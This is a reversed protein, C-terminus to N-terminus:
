LGRLSGVNVEFETLFDAIAEASVVFVTSEKLYAIDEAQVYQDNTLLSHHVGLQKRFRVYPVQEFSANDLTGDQLSIAAPDFRALTLRATTVIVSFFLKFNETSPPRYDKHELALCETALVLEAATKEILTIRESTSQGRVACFQAEACTPNLTVGSWGFTPMGGGVYHSVWAQAHARKQAEGDSHLFVWEADRPRKCEVAMFSTGHRNQLVLDLFGARGDAFNTWAHESYRVKWGHESTSEDIKRHVAIQLPFGSDNLTRLAPNDM